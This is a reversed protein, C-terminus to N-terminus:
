QLRQLHRRRDARHPFGKGTNYFSTLYSMGYDTTTPMVWSYSGASLAHTFGGNNQFVFLPNTGARRERCELRSHLLSRHRLQDRGSVRNECILPLLSTNHEVYQLPQHAGAARHMRFMFEVQDCGPGGHHRVHFWSPNRSRGHGAKTAKDIPSSPGYWDIIVGDIGRSIMDAIQAEVQAPDTSNYGVNMHNSGGFWLMLHAFVKTNAGSYLLSHVDLKSVNGDGLNGNSQSAFSNAASTNNRHKPALTTTPKVFSTDAYVGAACLLLVAACLSKFM